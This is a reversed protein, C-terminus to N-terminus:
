AQSRAPWSRLPQTTGAPAEPSGRDGCWWSWCCAQSSARSSPTVPISSTVGPCRSPWVRHSGVLRKGLSLGMTVWSCRERSAPAERAAVRSSQSFAAASTSRLDPRIFASSGSARTQSFSVLIVRSPMSTGGSPVGSSTTPTGSGPTGPWAGYVRPARTEGGSSPHSTRAWTASPSACREAASTMVSRSFPTVLRHSLRPGPPIATSSRSVTRPSTSSSRAGTTSSQGLSGTPAARASTSRSSRLPTSAAAPVESPPSGTPAARQAAVVAVALLHDGLQGRGRALVAQQREGDVAGRHVVEAGGVGLLEAVRM